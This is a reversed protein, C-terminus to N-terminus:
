RISTLDQAAGDADACRPLARRRSERSWDGAGCPTLVACVPVPPRACAGNILAAQLETVDIEGSRDTDVKCFWQWLQAPDPVGPTSSQPAQSRRSASHQLHPAYGAQAPPPAGYSPRSQSYRHPQTHAHVSSRTSNSHFM